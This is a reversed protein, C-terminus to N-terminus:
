KVVRVTSEAAIEQGNAASITITARDVGPVAYQHSGIVAFRGRGLTRIQALTPSTLDGWDILASFNGARTHPDSFRAIQVHFPKNEKVRVSLGTSKFNGIAPPPTASIVTVQTTVTNDNPNRSGPVAIMIRVTYVGPAEYTHTDSFEFENGSQFPVVQKDAVGDGFAIQARWATGSTSTPDDLTYTAFLANTLPVGAVAVLPARGAPTIGDALLARSELSEIARPLFAVRSRPRNGYLSPIWRM